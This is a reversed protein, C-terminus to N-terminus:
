TKGEVRERVAEFEAKRRAAEEPTIRRTKGEAGMFKKLPPLKKVRGLAAVHWVAWRTRRQETEWRWRAAEFVRTLERPTLGWFEEM